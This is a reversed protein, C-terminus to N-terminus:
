GFVPNIPADAIVAARELRSLEDDGVGLLGQLIERNHEGFLPSHRRPVPKSDALRWVAGQQRYPHMKPHPLEVWFGRSVLHRDELLTTTDLVRGAAIGSQQLGDMAAQPATTASWSRIRADIEDHHAHRQEAGMSRLHDDVALGIRDCLARWEADTRVSLVLWQDDGAVPYCGQPAFRADRCGRHVPQEGRSAAVFSEGILVIATELQALDIHTREAGCERRLLALSTAAVAATGAVPDGYSIGTKFPEGDGYGSLSALGSMMEIVPGFGVYDRQPGHKGFAAMSIVVLRPNVAHLVDAGLGLKDLVDARYNEILVDSEAALRLLLDRGAPQALDLTLSRKDRNYANFYFDSNWPDAVDPQPILTRINDWASPSEVKIVDAGMEAMRLTAYPGAWMMTLDIVRVGTLPLEPAGATTAASREIPAREVPDSDLAGRWGLGPFPRGPMRVAGEAEARDFAGREALGASALLDAPTTATGMPVRTELSIARLEVMTKDSFYVYLKAALEEDNEPLLRQMPERFRPESLEPDDLLRFLAPTQRELAFVGAWGDLCPYIGWTARTRNGLRTMPLGHYSTYASYYELMGSACEQGSIDALEGRGTRVRAFWATVAAAFANGGALAYAQNGGTILPTRDADGTLSMIGGLAFAVANTHQHDAYPGTLGFPTISIIVQAPHSAHHANWDLGLVALAGPQLDSVVIDTDELLARWPGGVPLHRKGAHVYAREDDTLAVVAGPDVHTVEAGFGRLFRGTLGAAYAGSLELVRVGRLPSIEPVDTGYARRRRAIVDTEAQGRRAM